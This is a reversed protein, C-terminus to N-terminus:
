ETIAKVSNLTLEKDLFSKAAQYTEDIRKTDFTGFEGLPFVITEDIQGFKHENASYM